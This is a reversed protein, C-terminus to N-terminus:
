KDNKKYQNFWIETAKLSSVIGVSMLRRNLFLIVEEDTYKLGEEYSPIINIEKQEFGYKEILRLCQKDNKSLLCNKISELLQKEKEM